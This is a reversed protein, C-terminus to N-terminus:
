SNSSPLKGRYDDGTLAVALCRDFLRSAGREGFMNVLESKTLNTTIVTSLGAANRRDIIEILIKRAYESKDVGVDDIILLECGRDLKNKEGAVGDGYRSFLASESLVKEKFKRILTEARIFEAGYFTTDRLELYIACALHTKGTGPPGALVINQYYTSSDPWCIAEDNDKSHYKWPWDRIDVVKNISVQDIAEFKEFSKCIYAPPPGYMADYARIEAEQEQRKKEALKEGKAKALNETGSWEAMWYETMYDAKNVALALYQTAKLERNTWGMPGDKLLLDGAVLKLKEDDCPHPRGLLESLELRQRLIAKVDNSNM